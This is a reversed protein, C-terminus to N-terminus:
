NGLTLLQMKMNYSFENEMDIEIEHDTINKYEIFIQRLQAFNRQVLISKFTAEYNGLKLEDTLAFIFILFSYKLGKICILFFIVPEPFNKQTKELQLKVLLLISMQNKVVCPM